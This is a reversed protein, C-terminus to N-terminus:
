FSILIMLMIGTVILVSQNGMLILGANLYAVSFGADVVAQAIKDISVYKDVNFFLDCQNSNLDMVVRDVFDLKVLSMEVSRSCM